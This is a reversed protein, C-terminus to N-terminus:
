TQKRHVNWLILIFLVVFGAILALVIKRKGGGLLAPNASAQTADDKDVTSQSTGETVSNSERDVKNQAIQVSKNAIPQDTQSEADANDGTKREKESVNPLKKRQQDADDFSIKRGSTKATVNNRQAGDASASDTVTEAAVEGPIRQGSRVGQGTTDNKSPDSPKTNDTPKTGPDAPMKVTAQSGEAPISKGQLSSLTPNSIGLATANGSAEGIRQLQVKAVDGGQLVSQNMGMVVVVCEGPASVNWEVRKNAEMAASGASVATPRFLSPDYTVRFDMASVGNGVDGELRIPFTVWRSEVTPDGIQVTGALANAASLMLLGFIHAKKM